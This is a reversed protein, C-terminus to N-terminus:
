NTAVSKKQAAIAAICPEQAVANAQADRTEIHRVQYDQDLRYLFLELVCAKGTYRWVQAPNEERKFGPEGLLAVVQAATMNQLKSTPGSGTAPTYFVGTGGLNTSGGLGLFDNDGTCSGLSVLLLATLTLIFRPREARGSRPGAAGGTVGAIARAIALLTSRIARFLRPSMRNSIAAAEAVTDIAGRSDGM